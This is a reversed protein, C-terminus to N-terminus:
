VRQLRRRTAAAVAPISFLLLCTLWAMLGCGLATALVVVVKGVFISETRLLIEAMAYLGAAASGALMMSLNISFITTAAGLLGALPKLRALGLQSVARMGALAALAASSAVAGLMQPEALDPWALM